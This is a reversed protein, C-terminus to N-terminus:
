LKNIEIFFSFYGVVFCLIFVIEYLVFGGCFIFKM